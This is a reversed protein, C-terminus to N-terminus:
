AAPDLATYVVDGAQNLVFAGTGYLRAQTRADAFDWMSGILGSVPSFVGYPRRIDEMLRKKYSHKM